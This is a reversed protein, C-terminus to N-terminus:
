SLFFPLCQGWFHGVLFPDNKGLKSVKLVGLGTGCFYGAIMGCYGCIPFGEGTNDVTGLCGDILSGILMGAFGVGIGGVVGGLPEKWMWSKDNIPNPAVGITSMSVVTDKNESVVEALLLQPNIPKYGIGSIIILLIWM